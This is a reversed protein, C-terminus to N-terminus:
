CLTFYVVRYLLLRLNLEMFRRAMLTDIQTVCMVFYLSILKREFHPFNGVQTDRCAHSLQNDLNLLLPDWFPPFLFSLMM